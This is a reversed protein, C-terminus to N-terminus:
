KCGSAENTHHTAKDASSTLPGDSVAYVATLYPTLPAPSRPPLVTSLPAQLVVRLCCQLSTPNTKVDGLKRTVEQQTEPFLVKPSLKIFDCDIVSLAKSFYNFRELIDDM